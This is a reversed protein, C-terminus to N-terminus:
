LLVYVLALLLLEDSQDGSLLLILLAILSTDGDLDLGKLNILNLISNAPKAPPEAPPIEEQTPNDQPPQHQSRTRADRERQSVHSPGTPLRSRSQMERVRREAENQMKELERGSYDAVIFDDRKM